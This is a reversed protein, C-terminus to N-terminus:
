RMLSNELAWLIEEESVPVKIKCVGIDELLVFNIENVNKKDHRIAYLFSSYNDVKYTIPIGLRKYLDNVYTYVKDPLGLKKESLKIAALIGLSVAAGHTVTYDSDVEIGHGITHGFNLINRLGNDKYDKGVASAKIRLCEMLIYIIKDEELEFIENCNKNIFELLQKNKILGYKIIESMGDLLQERTLTQLFHTSIYVFMPNHFAGVINKINNHNYGVKGGISSDVQATLSTPINIYRIGRMYTAAAYGALDGAVGGGIAILISRRDAEHFILFDYLSSITDYNKNEEGENFIFVKAKFSLQLSNLVSKQIVAVRSDTVIFVKEGPKVHEQIADELQELSNDIYVKYGSNLDGVILEKM